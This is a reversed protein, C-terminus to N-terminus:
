EPLLNKVTKVRYEKRVITDGDDNTEFKPTGSLSVVAGDKLLYGFTAYAGTFAVCSISDTEDDLMFKAMPAHDSKRYIIKFDRIRGAIDTRGRDNLTLEGIARDRNASKTIVSLYPQVPTGSVYAGLLELEYGLKTDIDYEEKQRICEDPLGWSDM